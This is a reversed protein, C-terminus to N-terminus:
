KKIWENQVGNIKLKTLKPVNKAHMAPNKIQSHSQLARRVEERSNGVRQRYNVGSTSTFNAYTKYM